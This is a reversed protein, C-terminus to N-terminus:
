SAASRPAVVRTLSTADVGGLHDLEYRRALMRVERQDIRIVYVPRTGLNADIVDTVSGLHEDLRTRDDVITIDPRLGEVRQAYWLTTSFSWWSVIIANPEMVALSRAVWRAAFNDKSVDIAGYRAPAAVLTQVLLM